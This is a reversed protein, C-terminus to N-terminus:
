PPNGPALAALHGTRTKVIQGLTVDLSDLRGGPGSPRPAGETRDNDGSEMQRLAPANRLVIVRRGSPIAIVHERQLQTLTRSVTEITLGLHDAIDTRSMPLEITTAHAIRDSMGLLFTAIKERACKRGLLLMHDQARELSRAMALMLGSVASPDTAIMEGIERRRFVRLKVAQVAEAAFRHELGAEVGFVDGQLHFADIQRRGDMLLKCTRVAGSIVKYFFDAPDGEGFIAHDGDFSRVASTDRLSSPLAVERDPTKRRAMVVALPTTRYVESATYM